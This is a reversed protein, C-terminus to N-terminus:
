TEVSLFSQLEVSAQRPWSASLIYEVSHSLTLGLTVSGLVVACLIQTWHFLFSMGHGQANSLLALFYSSLVWVCNTDHMVTSSLLSCLWNLNFLCNVFVLCFYDEHEYSNMLHRQSIQSSFRLSFLVVKLFFIFFLHENLNMFITFRM